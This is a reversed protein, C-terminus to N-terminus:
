TKIFNFFRQLKSQPTKKNQRLLKEKFYDFVQINQNTLLFETFYLIVTINSNRCKKNIIM